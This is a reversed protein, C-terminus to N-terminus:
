RGVMQMAHRLMDEDERNLKGKMVLQQITEEMAQMGDEGSYSDGRYNSGRYSSGRGSTGDYSSGRYSNGDYSSGGTRSYHGRVYHRGYSEGGEEMEEIKLVNKYAGSLMSLTSLDGATLEAKQGIEDLEKCLMRKLKEYDGM